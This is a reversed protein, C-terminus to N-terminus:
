KVIKNSDMYTTKLMIKREFFLLMREVSPLYRLLSVKKKLIRCYEKLWKCRYSANRLPLHSDTTEHLLLNEWKKMVIGPSFENQFYEMAKAYEDKEALLADVVCDALQKPSKYLMGNKVTDLYGPAKITVIRAGYAQLEVASLCFTETIGSPNPVGVKTRLLINEKGTGLRGMLHISDLLKGDKSISASFVQEYEPSALGLPGLESASNYLQGSGIVYLQADPIEKLIQPWALALLHFGKYPVISGVYTVVHGRKCFPNESVKKVCGELNVLNYIFTSKEFVPHDRYLDLAERGVHVVYKVYPNNAYYNLEWYCIFVHCWVIFELNGNTTLCDRQVYEADHKVVLCDFDEEEAHLIAEAIDSVIFCSLEKPMNFQKRTMYLRICLGNDRCSLLMSVLMILYETGGIGPNAQLITSADVDYISTNDIFFAVKKM